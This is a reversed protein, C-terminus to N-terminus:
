RSKIVKRKVYPAGFKFQHKKHPPEPLGNVHYGHFGFEGNYVNLHPAVGYGEISFRKAVEVPAFKIGHEKELWVRIQRCIFDDEISVDLGTLDLKALIELLKKSRLSFGGNGVQYKNYWDWTAGIYDYQLWDNDWSSACQPYGDPHCILVHETKIFESMREICFRSYGERGVFYDHETILVIEGFDIDRTAIEIARKAGIPDIRDICFVTVTPLQIKFKSAEM